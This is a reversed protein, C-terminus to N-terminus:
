TELRKTSVVRTPVILMAGEDADFDEDESRVGELEVLLEGDVETERRRMYAFLGEPRPFVSIGRRIRPDIEGTGECVPCRARWRVRGRCAPCDPDAGAELCSLCEHDTRGAGRCKDCPGTRGGGWPACEQHAPILLTEPPDDPSQLRFFTPV